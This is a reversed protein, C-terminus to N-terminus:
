INSPREYTKRCSMGNPHLNPQQTQPLHHHRRLLMEPRLLRSSTLNLRLKSAVNANWPTIITGLISPECRGETSSREVDASSAELLSFAKAANRRRNAEANQRNKDDSDAHLSNSFFTTNADRRQQTTTTM